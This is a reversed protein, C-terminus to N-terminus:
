GETLLLYGPTIPATM